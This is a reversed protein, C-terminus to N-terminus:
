GIGRRWHREPTVAIASDITVEELALAVESTLMSSTLPWGMVVLTSIADCKPFSCLFTMLAM